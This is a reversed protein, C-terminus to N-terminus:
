LGVAIKTSHDSVKKNSYPCSQRSCSGQLPSEEGGEEREALTEEEGEGALAEEEGEEASVRIQESTWFLAFKSSDSAKSTLSQSTL